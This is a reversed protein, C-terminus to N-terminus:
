KFTGEFRQASERFMNCEITGSKDGIEITLVSSETGKKTMIQKLPSVFIVRALVVWNEMGIYLSKIDSYESNPKRQQGKAMSESKRERKVEVKEIPGSKPKQEVKPKNLVSTSNSASIQKQEAKPVLNLKTQNTNDKSLARPNTNSPKSTNKLEKENEDSTLIEEIFERRKLTKSQNQRGEEERAILNNGDPNRKGKKVFEEYYIPKGVVQSVNLPLPTYHEIIIIPQNQKNNQSSSSTVKIVLHEKMPKKHTFIQDDVILCGRLRCYGDSLDCRVRVM